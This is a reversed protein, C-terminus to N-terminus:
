MRPLARPSAPVTHQREFRKPSRTAKPRTRDYGYPAMAYGYPAYATEDSYAGLDREPPYAYPQAYQREIAARETMAIRRDASQAVADRERQLRAVAAPDADGARIDVQEGDKCPVDTYLVGLNRDFCKYIPAGAASATGSAVFFALVLWAPVALTPRHMSLANM